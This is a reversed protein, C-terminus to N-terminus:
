TLSFAKASELLESPKFKKQQEESFITNEDFCSLKFHEFDLESMDCQSLNVGCLRERLIYNPQIGEIMEDVDQNSIKKPINMEDKM